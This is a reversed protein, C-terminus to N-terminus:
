YSYPQQNPPAQLAGAPAMSQPSNMTGPMGGTQVKQGPIVTLQKKGMAIGLIKRTKVSISFSLQQGGYPCVFCAGVKFFSDPYEYIALLDSLKSGLTIGDKLKPIGAPKTPDASWVIVSEVTGSKRNFIVYTYWGADAKPAMKDNGEYMWVICDSRGKPTKPIETPGMSAMSPDAGPMGPMMGAPYAPMGPMMPAAGTMMSMDSASSPLPPPNLINNIDTVDDVSPGIFHPAGRVAFVQDFTWNLGVGNLLLSDDGSDWQAKAPAVAICMLAIVALWHWRYLSFKWM